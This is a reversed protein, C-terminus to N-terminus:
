PGYLASADVTNLTVVDTSAFLLTAVAVVAFIAILQLTKVGRGGSNHLVSVPDQQM